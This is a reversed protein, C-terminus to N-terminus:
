EPVRDTRGTRPDERGQAALHHSAVDPVAELRHADPAALSERRHELANRSPVRVQDTRIV